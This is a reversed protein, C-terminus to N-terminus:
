PTPKSPVMEQWYPRDQKFCPKLKACMQKYMSTGEEEGYSNIFLQHFYSVYLSYAACSFTWLVRNHYKKDILDYMEWIIDRWDDLKLLWLGIAHNGTMESMHESFLTRIYHCKKIREEVTPYRNGNVDAEGLLFLYHRQKIDSYLRYWDRTKPPTQKIRESFDRDIADNFAKCIEALELKM